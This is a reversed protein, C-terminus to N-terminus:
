GMGEAIWPLHGADGRTIPTATIEHTGHDHAAPLYAELAAYPVAAATCPVQRWQRIAAVANERRFVSTVSPDSPDKQTTPDAM